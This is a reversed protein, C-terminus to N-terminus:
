GGIAVLLIGGFILLAGLSRRRGFDEGLWRWGAFAAFVISVERMAGVYSVPAMAYAKLVLIYGLPMLVAIWAIHPFHFRGKALIARWGHRQVVLPLLFFGTLAHVMALYPLPAVMRVAAADIFSYISIMVAVILALAVGKAHMGRLNHAKEGRAVNMLGALIFIVGTLGLSTPRENMLLMSWFMLLAPAAGRAIPYALSFDAQEYARILIWYYIVEAVASGLIYPWIAAPLAAQPSVLPLMSSAGLTIAWWTIVEKDEAKKLSFNWAAHCTAAIVVFVLALPPM